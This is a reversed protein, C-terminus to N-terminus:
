SAVILQYYIYHHRNKQEGQLGSQIHPGDDDNDDDAAAAPICDKAPKTKKM